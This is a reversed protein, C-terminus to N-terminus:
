PQHNNTSSSSPGPRITSPGKGSRDSARQAFEVPVVVEITVAYGAIQSEPASM